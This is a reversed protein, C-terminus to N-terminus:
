NIRSGNKRERIHDHMVEQRDYVRELLKTIGELAMAMKEMANAMRLESSDLKLLIKETGNKKQSLFRLIMWTMTVAFIGGVGLQSVATLPFSEM